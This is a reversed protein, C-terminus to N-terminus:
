ASGTNGTLGWFGSWAWPLAAAPLVGQGGVSGDLDVAM